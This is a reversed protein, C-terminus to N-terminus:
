RWGRCPLCGALPWSNLEPAQGGLPLKLRISVEEDGALSSNSSRAGSSSNSRSAVSRAMSTRRQQETQDQQGHQSSQKHPSM